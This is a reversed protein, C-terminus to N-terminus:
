PPSLLGPVMEAMLDFVLRVRRSTRLDRHAVIWVPFPFEPADRLARRVRPDADGVHLPAVGIGIGAATLAWQTPISASVAPFNAATLALGIANYYGLSTEVDDIAIFDAANLDALTAPNGLRELYAATAYFTARDDAVKRAFLEPDEPRNNRIAIDAERRRLDTVKDTAVVEVTVGPATERLQALIPPLVHISYVESATIRIPGDISTTQGSAARAAANAAEAMPKLHGAIDAGAETLTLGRGVREFLTVGLAEAFAAVQRSLTPQSTGLKRAAASLSGTEVTALFAKALDWDFNTQANKMCNHISIICLYDIKIDLIFPYFLTM